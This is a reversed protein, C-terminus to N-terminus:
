RLIKQVTYNFAHERLLRTIEQSALHTNGQWSPGQEM